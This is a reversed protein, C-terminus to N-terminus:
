SSNHKATNKTPRQGEEENDAVLRRYIRHAPYHPDPANDGINTAEAWVANDDIRSSIDVQDGERIIEGANLIRYKAM